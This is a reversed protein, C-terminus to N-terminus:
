FFNARISRAAGDDSRIEIRYRSPVERGGNSPQLLSDIGRALERMRIRNIRLEQLLVM